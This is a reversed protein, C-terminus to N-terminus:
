LKSTLTRCLIPVVYIPTVYTPAAKATSGPPPRLIVRNGAAPIQFEVIKAGATRRCNMQGAEDPGPEM